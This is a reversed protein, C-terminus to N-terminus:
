LRQPPEPPDPISPVIQAPAAAATTAAESRLTEGLDRESGDTSAAVVPTWMSESTEVSVDAREVSVDLREHLESQLLRLTASTFGSLRERTERTLAQLRELELVARHRDANQESSVKAAHERAKRLVLEAERRAEDKVSDAFKTALMLMTEARAADDRGHSVEGELEEIRARLHAREHVLEERERLADERTRVLEELRYLEARLRASERLVSEHEMQLEKFERVLSERENLLEVRERGIRELEANVVGHPPAEAQEGEQDKRQEVGFRRM